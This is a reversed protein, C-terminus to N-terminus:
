LQYYSEGLETLIYYFPPRTDQYILNKNVLATFVDGRFYTNEYGMSVCYYISGTSESQGISLMWGENMKLIIEKQKPTLKPLGM